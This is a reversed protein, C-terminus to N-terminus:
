AQPTLTAKKFKFLNVMEPEFNEIMYKSDTFEYQMEKRGLFEIIVDSTHKDLLMNSCTLPTTIGDPATLYQIGFDLSERVLDHKHGYACLVFIFNHGLNVQGQRKMNQLCAKRQEPNEARFVFYKMIEYDLLNNFSFSKENQILRMDIEFFENRRSKLLFKSQARNVVMSEPEIDTVEIKFIHKDREIHRMVLFERSLSVYIKNNDEYIFQIDIIEDPHDDHIERYSEHKVKCCDNLIFKTFRLEIVGSHYGIALMRGDNSVALSTATEQIQLERIM